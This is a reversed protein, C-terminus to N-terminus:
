RTAMGRMRALSGATFGTLKEVAADSTLPAPRTALLQLTVSGPFVVVDGACGSPGVFGEAAAVFAEVSERPKAEVQSAMVRETEPDRRGTADDAKAYARDRSATLAAGGASDRDDPRHGRLNSARGFM